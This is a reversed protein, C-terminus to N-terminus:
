KRRKRKGRKEERSRKTKGTAKIKLSINETVQYDPHYSRHVLFLYIRLIALDTSQLGPVKQVQVTARFIPKSIRGRQIWVGLAADYFDFPRTFSTARTNQLIALSIALVAFNLQKYSLSLTLTHTHTHSLSPSQIVTSEFHLGIVVWGGVWMEGGIVAGWDGYNSRRTSVPTIETLSTSHM